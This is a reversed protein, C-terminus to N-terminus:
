STVWLALAIARLALWRQQELEKQQRVLAIAEQSANNQLERVRSRVEELESNVDALRQQVFNQAENESVLRLRAVHSKVETFANSLWV